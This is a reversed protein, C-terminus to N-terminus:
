RQVARFFRAAGTTQQLVNTSADGQGAIVMPGAVDSYPGAVEDSAQIFNTTGGVTVWRIDVNGGVRTVSTIRLPSVIHSYLEWNSFGDDTASFLLQNGFSCLFQPFSDGVGPNIDTVRTVSVGDYKWLEYGTAPTTAVFYLANNFVTLSEPFADGSANLNTVMSASSGDYRWLEWGNAGATAAFYLANNFVTLNKPFSGGSANINAALTANTGNYRWLESGNIGDDARFYLTNQFVIFNEPYSSSGANLNTVLSVSSGDTRWLEFGAADTYAQFYLNTGFPTFMKPYSSSSQGGPNINLLVTNTGNHKWLEYGNVGDDAMFYLASNFATLGTPYSGFSSGSDAHINTVMSATTGNFKWLEYNAKSASNDASFYLAGNFVTLDGPFSSNPNAKISDNADANIDTVRTANTGNWRWLEAGRRQDYASFYLTNSYVCPFGPSSDYGQFVGGGLDSVQDNINTTLAAYHGDYKWLERGLTFNNASFYLAGAYEVMNSPYSGTAGPNLDAVRFTATVNTAASAAQVVVVM